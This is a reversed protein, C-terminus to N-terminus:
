PKLRPLTDLGGIGFLGLGLTALWSALEWSGLVGTALLWNCALGLAQKWWRNLVRNVLASGLLLLRIGLEM